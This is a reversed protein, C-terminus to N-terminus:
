PLLNNGAVSVTAERSAVGSVNLVLAHEGSPLNSPIDIEAQYVGVLSAVLSLTRSAAAQGGITASAPLNKAAGTLYVTLYNGAKVPHDPGNISGDENVAIARTGDQTFLAPVAETVWFNTEPGQTGNVAVRLHATGTPTGSPLQINIQGPNSFEIPVAKGNVLAATQSADGATLHDGFVSVQSGPVVPRADFNAASVVGRMGVCPLDPEGKAAQTVTVTHGGISFAGSRRAAPNPAVDVSITAASVVESIWTPGFTSGWTCRAPTQAIILSAGAAAVCRNREGVEIPCSGNLRASVENRIQPLGSYASNGPCETTSTAKPSIGADRHGSIVNLMLGSAAHPSEGSPDLNWKEAQWALMSSLTALMNPTPPVDIYTGLLAVGMTGSNVGSFHAGLVGDGGARGEYLIGNPDILYNYGIDNWGNGMVHLVWISRLVAPWDTAANAGATHHVILHTVTTYLPPDQAPCVQPTCGWQERPVIAPAAANLKRPVALAAPADGPNIFLIEPDPVGEVQAYRYVGDFYILGSGMRDREIAEGNSEM